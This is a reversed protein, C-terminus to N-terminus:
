AVVFVNPHDVLIRIANWVELRLYHEDIAKLVLELTEVVTTLIELHKWWDDYLESDNYGDHAKPFRMRIGSREAYRMSMLSAEEGQDQLIHWQAIITNGIAQATPPNLGAAHPTRPRTM